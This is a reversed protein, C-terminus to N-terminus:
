SEARRAAADDLGRQWLGTLRQQSPWVEAIVRKVLERGATANTLLVGGLGSHVRLGSMAQYGIAQGGHGFELDAGSDDVITSWGYPRGSRPTLMEQVLPRPLLAGPLGLYGRRVEVALRALDTATTWLGAAASEAYVQYGGPLPRGPEDHGLAVPRGGTRPFAPDFSSGAMGLPGFVLSRVVEDFPAGTLDSMTQQLISIHLTNMLFASGPASAFRPPPTVAPPRGHLVDLVTPIPEDPAFRNLRPHQAFGALHGLLQRFTVAPAPDGPIRWSTLHANVDEDLDLGREALLRLLAFTTVHKSLSGAAFVTDTTVPESGGAALTGFAEASAIAGDQILVLSVGPVEHRALLEPMALGIASAAGRSRGGDARGADAQGSNTQGSDTQGSNTQGSNARAGNARPAALLTGLEAVLNEALERVTDETHLDASYTWGLYLRGDQVEARVALQHGRGASGERVEDERRPALFLGSLASGRGASDEPRAFSFRVLPAPQAALEEAVVADPALHRLLGYGYWPEPVGRLQECVSRVAAATDRRKPLWLSVPFADAFAGVAGRLEPVERRLDRGVEIDIRDNGTWRTLVRGLVGLLTQEAEAGGLLAATPEPALVTTLTRRGAWTHVAEPHDVPLEVQPQRNLWFDAQDAIEADGARKAVRGAWQRWTMAPRAWEAPRGESLRRYAAELDLLLTEWSDADVALDYATLWLEPLQESGLVRDGGFRCLSARLVPGAQPDLDARDAATATAIEEARREAPVSELDVTRVLQASEHAATWGRPVTGSTDLRFRLAEHQAVVAALAQELLEPDLPETVPVRVSRAPSGGEELLRLQGPLLPSRDADDSQGSGVLGALEALSRAEYIMWLSLDLGAQRASNLMRVARISDGGLDFFNDEVGVRTVDLGECWLAALKEEVPTRPPTHRRNADATERNPTPLARHDLKGNATLPITDITVFAAPVMYRPLTATLHDRLDAPDPTHGDAPVLYAVLQKGKETDHTTVVADHVHPHTTLTTQ